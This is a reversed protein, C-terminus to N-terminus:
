FVFEAGVSAKAHWIGYWENNSLQRYKAGGGGVLVKGNIFFNETVRVRILPGIVGIIYLGREKEDAARYGVINSRERLTYIHQHIGGLSGGFLEVSFYVEKTQSKNQYIRPGIAFGLEYRPSVWSVESGALFTYTDSYSTKVDELGLETLQDKFRTYRFQMFSPEIEDNSYITFVIDHGMGYRTSISSNYGLGFFITDKEEEEAYVSPVLFLALLVVLILSKGKMKVEKFIQV